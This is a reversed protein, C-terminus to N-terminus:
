IKKSIYGYLYDMKKVLDCIWKDNPFEEHKKIPQNMINNFEDEPLQWKKLIYEKDNKLEDEDYLPEKLYEVAEDRTIQGSCIMSSLHAKRKDVNFKVPLIYNQYFKTFLSEGHKRGYEMWGLEKSLIKKADKVNYDVYNLLSIKKINKIYKLYVYRYVGLTPISDLKLAGYSEHIAKINKLDNKIYNWNKGQMGETASNNGDLIYKIKRENAINYILAGIAHDTPVEIDVVSAKFFSLQLDKFEEWNINITELDFNCRKAIQKINNVAEATNWGNDLHVLLPRLGFKKSLYAVYSSDVGGSLGLICDYRENKGREKIKQLVSDLKRKREIDDLVPKEYQKFRKDCRNCYGNEDFIIGQDTTDMVCRKCIQMTEVM